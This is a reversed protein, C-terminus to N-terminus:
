IPKHTKKAILDNLKGITANCTAKMLPYLKTYKTFTDIMVLVYEYGYKTKVLPGFFDISIRTDEKQLQLNELDSRFKISCKYRLTNITVQIIDREKEWQKDPHQRSLLDAAINERGPCHEM